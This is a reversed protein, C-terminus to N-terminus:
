RAAAAPTRVGAAADPEADDARRSRHRRRGARGQAGDPQRVPLGRQARHRDADRQRHRAQGAAPTRPRRRHPHRRLLRLGVGGAAAAPPHLRPGPAPGPVEGARVGQVDPAPQPRRDQGHVGRRRDVPRRVQDRAPGRRRRALEAAARHGAAAAGRGRGPRRRALVVDDMGWDDSVVTLGGETVVLLLPIDIGTTRILRTLGRAQALDLRGDIIAADAHPADILVTAEPPLVTVRHSLLALAPLVEEDGETAATLLLLSGM